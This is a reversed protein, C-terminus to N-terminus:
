NVTSYHSGSEGCLEAKSFNVVKEVSNHKPFIHFILGFGYIVSIQTRIVAGYRYIKKNIVHLFILMLLRKVNKHIFKLSSISASIIKIVSPM